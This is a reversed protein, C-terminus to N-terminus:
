FWHLNNNLPRVEVPAAHKGRAIREAALNAFAEWRFYEIVTGDTTVLVFKDVSLREVNDTKMESRMWNVPASTSKAIAQTIVLPLVAIM